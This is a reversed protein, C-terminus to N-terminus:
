KYGRYSIGYADIIDSSHFESNGKIKNRCNSCYLRPLTKGTYYNRKTKHFKECMPCKATVFIKEAKVNQQYRKKSDYDKKPRCIICYETQRGRINKDKIVVLNNCDPTKCLKYETM